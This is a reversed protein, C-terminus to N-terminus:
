NAPFFRQAFKQLAAAQATKSDFPVKGTVPHVDSALPQIYECGFSISEAALLQGKSYFKFTYIPHFCRMGGVNWTQFRVLKALKRADKARLEASLPHSPDPSQLLIVEARDPIPLNKTFFGDDIGAPDAMARGALAMAALALLRIQLSM